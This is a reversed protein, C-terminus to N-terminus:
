LHLLPFSPFFTGASADGYMVMSFLSNPHRLGVPLEVTSVEPVHQGLWVYELESMNAYVKWSEFLGTATDMQKDKCDPDESTVKHTM